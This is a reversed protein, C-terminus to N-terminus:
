VIAAVDFGIDEVAARLEADSVGVAEVVAQKKELSVAVASVGSLAELAATVAATCHACRM